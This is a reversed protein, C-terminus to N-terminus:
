AKLPISIWGFGERRMKRLALRAAALMIDGPVFSFICHGRAWFAAHEFGAQVRLAAAPKLGWAALLASVSARIAGVAVATQDAQGLGALVDIELRQVDLLPLVARLWRRQARRDTKRHRHKGQRKAGYRLRVGLRKGEPVIVGDLRLWLGFAGVSVSIVSHGAEMCALLRVTVRMSLLLYLLFVLPMRMGGRKLM